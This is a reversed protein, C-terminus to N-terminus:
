NKDSNIGDPDRIFVSFCISNPKSKVSIENQKFFELSHMVGRLGDSLTENLSCNKSGPM